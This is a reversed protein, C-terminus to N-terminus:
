TAGAAERGAVGTHFVQERFTAARRNSHVMCRYAAGSPTQAAPPSSKPM